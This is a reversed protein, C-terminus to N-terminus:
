LKCHMKFYIYRYFRLEREQLKLPEQCKLAQFLYLLYMILPEDNNKDDSANDNNGPTINNYMVIIIMMMIM